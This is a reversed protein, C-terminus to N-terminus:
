VFTREKPITIRYRKCFSSRGPSKKGELAKSWHNEAWYPELLRLHVKQAKKLEKEFLQEESLWSGLIDVEPIDNLM